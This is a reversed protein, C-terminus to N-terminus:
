SSLPYCTFFRLTLTKFCVMVHDAQEKQFTKNKLYTLFLDEIARDRKKGLQRMVLRRVVEDPDDIWEFVEGVPVFAM